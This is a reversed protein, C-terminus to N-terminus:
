ESVLKKELYREYIRYLMEMSAIDIWENEAHLNGVLPRTMIVPIGFQCIYRADSGGHERILRPATGTIEETAALYLPDPAVHTPEAIVIIEREIGDSYQAVADMIERGSYPPPFRIDLVAEAHSPIRNPVRNETRIQTVACTPHWHDDGHRLNAFHNQVRAVAAIIREMPNEVLWPRSAHGSPGHAMLRIHLIGKEEVAIEHITGSDPLIAVGCRFGAKEFLFRTGHNGGHEEDSTVALGLAVGPRREHFDRFLALLIALEGKMDGSGPGYIRGDRVSSRYETGEPRAVVDIHALLMVEPREIEAPLVVASPSGEEAFRRVEVSEAEAHNVVFEMCREIEDPRDRTSPILILDRALEVLRNKLIESKGSTATM